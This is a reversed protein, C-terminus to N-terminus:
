WNAHTMNYFELIENLRMGVRGQFRLLLNDTLLLYSIPLGSSMSGCELVRLLTCLAMFNYFALFVRLVFIHLLYTPVPDGQRICRLACFFKSLNGNVKVSFNGSEV